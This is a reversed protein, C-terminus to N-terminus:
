NEFSKCIVQSSIPKNGQTSFKFKGGMVTFLKNLNESWPLSKAGKIPLPVLTLSGESILGGKTYYFICM